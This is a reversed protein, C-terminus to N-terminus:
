EQYEKEELSTKNRSAPHIEPERDTHICAQLIFHSVFFVYFNELFAFFRHCDLLFSLGFRAKVRAGAPSM